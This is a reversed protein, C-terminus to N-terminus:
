TLILRSRRLIDAGTWTLFQTWQNISDPLFMCFHVCTRIYTVVCTRISTHVCSHSLTHANKDLYERLLDDCERFWAHCHQPVGCGNHRWWIGIDTKDKEATVCNLIPLIFIKVQGSTGIWLGHMMAYSTMQYVIIPMFQWFVYHRLLLKAISKFSRATELQGPYTGSPIRIVFKVTHV